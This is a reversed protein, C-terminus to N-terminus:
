GDPLRQLRPDRYRSRNQNSTVVANFSQAKISILKQLTEGVHAM